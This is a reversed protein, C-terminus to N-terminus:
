ARILDRGNSWYGIIVFLPTLVVTMVMKFVFQSIIMNVIPKGTGVFSLTLFLSISVFQSVFNSFNYRLWFGRDFKKKIFDFIPIDIFYQSVLLTIEGSLFIRFGTYVVKRYGATESFTPLLLSFAIFLFVTLRVVVATIVLHKAEKKGFNNNVVDLLGFGFLIGISGVIIKAGFIDVIRTSLFPAIIFLSVYLSKIIDLRNFVRKETQM